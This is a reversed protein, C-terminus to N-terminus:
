VIDQSVLDRNRRLSEARPLAVNPYLVPEELLIMSFIELVPDIPLPYDKGTVGEEAAVVLLTRWVRIVRAQSPFLLLLPSPLHPFLQKWVEAIVGYNQAIEILEVLYTKIGEQERVRSM